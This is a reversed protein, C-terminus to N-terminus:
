HELRGADDISQAQSSPQPHKTDVRHGDTSPQSSNVSNSSPKKRTNSPCKSSADDQKTTTDRKSKSHPQITKNPVEMRSPANFPPNLSKTVGKYNTFADRM